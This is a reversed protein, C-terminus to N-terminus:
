PNFNNISRERCIVYKSIASRNHSDLQLITQIHSPIFENFKVEMVLLPYKIAEVTVTDKNFIDTSNVSYSLQKDFTVRVDSIDGVYAERVYDVIVRPALQESRLLLYFDRCVHEQKEKLFEYDWHLLQEYEGRTLPVSEKSIYEGFRNKRELRIVSDSLNYIRIRYKKRKFVGYNKTFLDTDYVNDFYLSRIHYGEEDISYKDRQLVMQIRSRLLKYEFENIYYKLEHRLKKTFGSVM